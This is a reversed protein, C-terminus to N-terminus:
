TLDRRMADYQEKTLEGKAYREKLIELARDPQSARVSIQNNSRLLARIGVAILIIIAIWFLLMMIGGIVAAWGYGFGPMWFM